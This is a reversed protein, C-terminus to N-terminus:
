DYIVISGRVVVDQTSRRTAAFKTRMLASSRVGSV